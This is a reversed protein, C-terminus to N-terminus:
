SVLKRQLLSKDFAAWITLSSVRRAAQIGHRAALIGGLCRWADWKSKIALRGQGRITLVIITLFVMLVHFPFTVLLLATPMNKLYTWEINRHGHYTAFDSDQGGTTASGVHYAMADWVLVCTGGALRLRFGLDIDEIYCFYREDFGGVEELASRRYLAAAACASFVDRVRKTNHPLQKGHGIRWVLGSFHYADGVGDLVSEVSDKMLRSAFSAAGSNRTAEACMCALWDPALFADPNVLAVLSCETCLDLAFNNGGAFGSNFGLSVFEVGRQSWVKEFDLDRAGNEVVIVRNAPRQQQQICALCRGLVAHSNYSVVVIAVRDSVGSEQPLM